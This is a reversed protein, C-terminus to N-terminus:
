EGLNEAEEPTAWNDIVADIDGKYDRAAAQFQNRYVAGLNITEVILNRLKWSGDRGRHMQYLIVYPESADGHILQSVSLARRESSDGEPRQIETSSGGFAILGKGYTRVLGYRMAEAFRDVQARLRKRGAADLSRYRKGDAYPGMVARAFGAFDVVEDLIARLERYYRDPDDEIYSEAEKVLAMVRDTTREVLEYAALQPTQAWGPASAALGLLIGALLRCGGRLANIGISRAPPRNWPIEVVEFSSGRILM